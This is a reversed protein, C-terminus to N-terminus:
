GKPYATSFVFPMWFRIDSTDEDDRRLRTDGDDQRLPTCKEPQWGEFADLVKSAYFLTAAANGSAVTIQCSWRVMGSRGSYSHGTRWGVGPYLVAYAPTINAVKPIPKVEALFTILNQISELRTMALKPLDIM